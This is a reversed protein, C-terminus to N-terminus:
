HEERTHLKCRQRDQERRQDALSYGYTMASLNCLAKVEACSFLIKVRNFATLMGCGKNHATRLYQLYVLRREGRSLCGLWCRM